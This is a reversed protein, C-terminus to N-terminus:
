LIVNCGEPNGERGSGSDIARLTSDVDLAQIATFTLYLPILAAPREASHPTQSQARAISGVSLVMVIAAGLVRGNGM